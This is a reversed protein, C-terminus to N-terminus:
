SSEGPSFSPNSKITPFFGSLILHRKTGVAWGESGQETRLRGKERLERCVPVRPHKNMLTPSTGADGKLREAKIARTVKSKSGSELRSLEPGQARRRPTHLREEWLKNSNGTTLQYSRAGCLLLEHSEKDTEEQREWTRM